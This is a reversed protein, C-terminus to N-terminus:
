ICRYSHVGDTGGTNVTMAILTIVSWQMYEKYSRDLRTPPPSWAFQVGPWPSGHPAPWVAPGWASASATGSPVGSRRDRWPLLFCSFLPLRAMGDARLVDKQVFSSTISIKKWKVSPLCTSRYERLWSTPWRTRLARYYRTWKICEKSLHVIVFHDFQSLMRM